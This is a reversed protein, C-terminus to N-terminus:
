AKKVWATCWGGANVLKMGVIPCPGAADGAKGQYLQCGSCVRGKAYTPFKAADVKTADAKYGVAKAGPDNEDAKAAQALAQTATGVALAAPVINIIFQRRSNM